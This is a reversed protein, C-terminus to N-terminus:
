TSKLTDISIPSSCYPCSGFWTNFSKRSSPTSQMWELLCAHHFSKGCRANECIQDPTSVADSSSSTKTGAAGPQQHSGSEQPRPMSFLAAAAARMSTESEAHEDTPTNSGAGSKSSADIPLTSEAAAAAEATAAAAAAKDPRARKRQPATEAANLARVGDIRPGGAGVSTDSRSESKQGDLRYSYCIGCNLIYDTAQTSSRSPLQHGLAAELNQLLSKEASWRGVNGNFTEQHGSVISTAGLFRYSPLKRPEYPDLVDVTISCHKAIVVRRHRHARSPNEPEQVWCQADLEDFDDWFVVLRELEARFLEVLTALTDGRQSDWPPSFPVPLAHHVIPGVRPYDRPIEFGVIHLRNRSDKYQLAVRTMMDNLDVLHEWGLADIESILKQYYRTDPVAVPIDRAAESLEGSSVDKTAQMSRVLDMLEAVFHEMSTALRLRATLVRSDRFLRALRPCCQFSAESLPKTAPGAIFLSSPAGGPSSASHGVEGATRAPRMGAIRITYEAGNVNIFGSAAEGAASEPILVYYSM